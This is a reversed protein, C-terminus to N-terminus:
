AATSRRLSAIAVARCGPLGSAVILAIVPGNRVVPMRFPRGARVMCMLAYQVLVCYLAWRSKDAAGYFVLLPAVYCFFTLCVLFDSPKRIRAPLFLLLGVYLVWSELYKAPNEALVFGYGEYFPVVFDKYGLELAFRFMVGLAYLWARGEIHRLIRHRTKV